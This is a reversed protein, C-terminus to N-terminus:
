YYDAFKHENLSIPLRYNSSPPLRYNSFQFNTPVFDTVTDSISLQRNGSGCIHGDIFLVCTDVLCKDFLTIM